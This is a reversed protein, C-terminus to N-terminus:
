TNGRVDSIDVAQNRGNEKAYYLAQDAQRLVAEASEGDRPFYAIGISVTVRIKEMALEFEESEVAERIAEAKRRVGAEQARPMLVAFEEGGYRAVFDTDYFSDRLVQGLRELVQDGFPHGYKDNLSKFHDIDLLMFCFGTKFTKARVVEERLKEDLAGRRYLGTLGDTQSHREVEQFLMVRKFAFAIEDVFTEAKSLLRVPDANKPVQVYFYGILNEKEFIPVAISKEPVDIVHPVRLPLKREQLFRELTAWQAGVSSSLRRRAIPRMRGHETVYLSFSEVGLYQRIAIELKPRVDDWTLAESLGKIMSYLALTERQETDVKHIRHKITGVERKLAENRDRRQIQASELKEYEDSNRVIVYSSYFCSIMGSIGAIAWMPFGKGRLVLFGILWLIVIGAASATAAWKRRPYAGWLSIAPFFSLFAIMLEVSM